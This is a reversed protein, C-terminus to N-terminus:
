LGNPVEQRMGTRAVQRGAWWAANLWVTRWGPLRPGPRCYANRKRAQAIIIPWDIVGTRTISINRVRSNSGAPVIADREIIEPDARRMIHLRAAPRQNVAAPNVNPTGVRENSPYWQM